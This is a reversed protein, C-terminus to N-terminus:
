DRSGPLASSASPPTFEFRSPAIPQDFTPSYDTTSETVFSHPKRMSEIEAARLDEPLDLKAVLRSIEEEDRVDDHHMRMSVRRLSHDAKAIWLTILNGARHASVKACPAGGVIGDGDAVYGLDRKMGAAWGLLMSPVTLSTAGSVGAMATLGADLDNSEVRGPHISWWVRAPGSGSRWIVHRTPSFFREHATTYEFRFAGTARDFAITFTTRNTHPDSGDDSRFVDVLTGRDEYSRATLYREYMKRLIQQTTAAPAPTQDAPATSYACGVLTSQLVVCAAFTGM